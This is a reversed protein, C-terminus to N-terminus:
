EIVFSYRNKLFLKIQNYVNQISNIKAINHNILDQIILSITNYFIQAKGLISHFRVYRSMLFADSILLRIFCRVFKRVMLYLRVDRSM